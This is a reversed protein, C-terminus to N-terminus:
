IGLARRRERSADRRKIYDSGIKGLPDTFKYSAMNLRRVQNYIEETTHDRIDDWGTAEILAYFAETNGEIFERVAQKQNIYDIIQGETIDIPPLESVPLFPDIDQQARAQETLAQKAEKKVEGWGRTQEELRLLKEYDMAEIDKKGRSLLIYEAKEKFRANKETKMKAPDYEKAKSIYPSGPRSLKSQWRMVEENQVGAHRVISSIRENLRRILYDKRIYDLSAAEDYKPRQPKTAAKKTKSVPAKRAKKAASTTKRKTGKPM